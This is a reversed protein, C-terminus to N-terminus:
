LLSKVRGNEGTWSGADEFLCKSIMLDQSLLMVYRGFVHFEPDPDASTQKM